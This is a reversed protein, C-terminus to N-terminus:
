YFSADIVIYEIRYIIGQILNRYSKDLIVYAIPSALQIVIILQTTQEISILHLKTTVHVKRVVHKYVNESM